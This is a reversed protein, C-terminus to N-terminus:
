VVKALRAFSLLLKKVGIEAFAVTAETDDKTTKLSIVTGDGFQSHRVRDGAQLEPLATAPLLSSAKQGSLDADSLSPRNWAYLASSFDNKEHWGTSTSSTKDGPVVALFRSATTISNRGMLTRRFAHLLYVKKKARTVGVYFLRREEEMQAPDDITRFHPLLGDEMGIIFVVPFELGKAQHLTIFTVASGGEQLSDVDSVLTVGELFSALGEPPPLDNHEQAVGRLEMVNDWRDEGEPQEFVYGKFGLSEVVFDFLDTLNVERSKVTFKEMVNFFATLQKTTNPTFPSDSTGQALTRLSEYTSVNMSKAWNLLRAQTQDGIGRQPVNIVRALSVIDSHNQILRLYALFDKVEKREYFRTGAVLRYATGYRIFTEELVRSQANTRYMVAFDGLSYEGRGVLKEIENIVFQAEEQENYAEVVTVPEGPANDTWLKKPNRQLNASIIKSATELITKTSRYNQELLVVKTDPFDKEFSLINRIDAFRWSYISQDPDGVVCVNRHKGGLQKILEYQVLNTDQFEDVLLHTYRSQYKELVEQHQRFLLVTRMLLDDFDLANSDKLRQQYQEYVRGAIEDFYSRGRQAYDNPTLLQSKAASIAAALASPAYQKPDLNLDNLTRKILSKQDDDDYIVFGPEIGIVKGDRRLIQACIAHFTGLTLDKVAFSVLRELREKMERAAKNTFTVAMIHSPKVGCVRLLYAIRHTIVRTKGSGPGALILVPGSITEVADKQPPNLGSLIDM